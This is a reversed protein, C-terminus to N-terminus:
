RRNSSATSGTRVFLRLPGVRAFTKTKTEWENPRAELFAQLRDVLTM